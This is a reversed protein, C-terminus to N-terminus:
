VRFDPESKALNQGVPGVNTDLKELHTTQNPDDDGRDENGALYRTCRHYNAQQMTKNDKRTRPNTNNIEKKKPDYIDEQKM